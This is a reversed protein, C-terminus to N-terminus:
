SGPAPPSCRDAPRYGQLGHVPWGSPSLRSTRLYTLANAVRTTDADSTAALAILAYSTDLATSGYDRRSGFGGDANQQLGLDAIVQQADRNALRLALAKRAQQLLPRITADTTSAILSDLQEILNATADTPSVVVIPTM